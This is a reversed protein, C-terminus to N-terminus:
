LNNGVFKVSGTGGDHLGGATNNATVNLSIIYGNTAGVAINIGYGGNVGFEGSPGCTNGILKFANTGGDVLIGDSANSSMSCGNVLVNSANIGIRLGQLFNNSLITSVIDVQKISGTTQQGLYCGGGASSTASWCATIKIVDIDGGNTAAYIGWDTGTDFFSHEVAVYQIVLGTTPSLWLGKGAYITSVHRITLDGASVVKIGAAMNPGPGPGIIQLNDLLMDFGPTSSNDLLIGLFTGGIFLSNKVHFTGAGVGTYRVGIYANNFKCYDIYVNWVQNSVQIYSGSTRTVTASFDLGDITTPPADQVGTSPGTIDLVDLTASTTIIFVSGLSGILNVQKTINLAASVLYSGDPFYIQGGYNIARQLAATDDTTGDGVAGFDKVSVVDRDKAQLTRAIAGTGAAIFGVLSSGSSAAITTYVGAVAASVDIADVVQDWITNGLFDMVIQRYSGSGFIIARGAIDLPVPNSNLTTQGEDQWTDKPTTTGPIYFAVSGLALSLGAADTFQQKGYPMTVAM